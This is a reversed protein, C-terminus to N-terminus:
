HEDTWIVNHFMSTSSRHTIFSSTCVTNINIRDICYYYIEITLLTVSFYNIDCLWNSFSFLSGFRVYVVLRFIKAWIEFWANFSLTICLKGSNSLLSFRLRLWSIHSLIDCLMLIHHKWYCNTAIWFNIKNGM